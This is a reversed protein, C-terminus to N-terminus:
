MFLYMLYACTNIYDTAHNQPNYLDDTIYLINVTVGGCSPPDM